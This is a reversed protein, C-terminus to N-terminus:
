PRHHRCNNQIYFYGGGVGGFSPLESQKLGLIPVGTEQEVWQPDIEFTQGLKVVLDAIEMKTMNEQNDWEFYHKELAKYVPSLKVLRPFVKSNLINKVLLKDSEFRDKALRFQIESSGVYAKEDSLGSGGLIRKALESNIREIILDFTDSSSVGGTNGIEFKENGQGIMFNNRKFNTGAEYLEKLRNSDMRDTTIFLPPVGFKDLYDQWAGFGLKKALIAPTMQALMGLDYDKGVQLYYNALIGDAYPWGNTDGEEKVIIKNRVSFHSQPIEDVTELEGLENTEFIEILTRGQFRSMLILRILEEFWPREFLFTLEKNENGKDDIIKFKSRQCYLIRSDILSSLHNDLLLNQYLDSLIGFQPDDRDTAIAVASIWDRLEKAMMTEPNQIIRGSVKQPSKLEAAVRLVREDANNIFYAAMKNKINDFIGM